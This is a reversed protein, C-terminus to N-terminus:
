ISKYHNFTVDSTINEFQLDKEITNGSLNHIYNKLENKM